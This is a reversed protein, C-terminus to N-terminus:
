STANIMVITSEFKSECILQVRKLLAIFFLVSLLPVVSNTHPLKLVRPTNNISLIPPVRDALLDVNGYMTSCAMVTEKNNIM